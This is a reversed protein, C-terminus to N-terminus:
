QRETAAKASNGQCFAFKGSELTSIKVKKGYNFENELQTQSSALCFYNASYINESYMKWKENEM